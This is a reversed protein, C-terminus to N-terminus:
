PTFYKGTGVAYNVGTLYVKSIDATGGFARVTPNTSAFSSILFRAGQYANLNTGDVGVALPEHGLMYTGTQRPLLGMPLTKFVAISSHRAFTGTAVGLVGRWYCKGRNDFAIAVPNTPTGNLVWGATNLATTPVNIWPSIADQIPRWHWGWDSSKTVLIYISNTDTKFFRDGINWPGSQPLTTGSYPASAKRLREWNANLWTEFDAMSDSPTALSLRYNPTQDVGGGLGNVVHSIARVYKYFEETRIGTERNARSLDGGPFFLRRQANSIEFQVGMARNTKNTINSPNDGNLESTGLSAAFGAGQLSSILLDRNEIDLGGVYTEAVSPTVDSMGHFSYCYDSSRVIRLGQPEDYRTSTIHLDSNNATKIGELSYYAHRCDAAVTSAVESTGAEIAGGHIAISVAKASSYRIPLRYDVGETNAAALEAWNAYVDAM